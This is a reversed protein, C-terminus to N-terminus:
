RMALQSDLFGAHRAAAFLEGADLRFHAALGHLLREREALPLDGPLDRGRIPDFPSAMFRGNEPAVMVRRDGDIWLYERQPLLESAGDESLHVLGNAPDIEYWHANRAVLEPVSWAKRNIETEAFVPRHPERTGLALPVLSRGDVGEAAPLDLLELVTPYIDITRVMTELRQRPLGPARLGLLVRNAWLSRFDDGHSNSRCGPGTWGDGHDSLLVLLSRELLGSDRFASVLEHVQADVMSICADVEDAGRWAYPAPASFPWHNGCLHVTLFLPRDRPAEDLQALVGRVFLRPSYAPSARNWRLPAALDHGLATQRALNLASLDFASALLFDAAGMQPHLTQEFGHQERVNSFRTEDTAHLTTYGAAALRQGLYVNDPAPASEPALNFRVGDNVPWRGTLISIWSPYTRALPTWASDFRSSEDLLAVVHPAPQAGDARDEIRNSQFSDLGLLIVNRDQTFPVLTGPATLLDYGGFVLLVATAWAAARRRLAAERALACATAALVLAAALLPPALALGTMTRTGDFAGSLWAGWSASALKSGPLLLAHLSLWACAFAWTSVAVALLRAARGGGWRQLAAERAPGAVAAWGRCILLTFAVALLLLWAAQGVLRLALPALDTGLHNVFSTHGLGAALAALNCHLESGLLLAALLLAERWPRRAPPMRAPTSM